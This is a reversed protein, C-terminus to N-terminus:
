DCEYSYAADYRGCRYKFGVYEFTCLFGDTGRCATGAPDRNYSYYAPRYPQAPGMAALDGALDSNKRGIFGGMFLFILEHAYPATAAKVTIAGGTCLPFLVIPLLATVAIPLAETVWLTAMLVAIAVVARGSHSLGGVVEGAQGRSEAPILIYAFLALVIGLALGIWRGRGSKAKTDGDM